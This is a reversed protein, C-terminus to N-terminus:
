EARKAALREVLSLVPATKEEEKPKKEWPRELLLKMASVSGNRASIELLRIVDDQTLHGDTTPATKLRDFREAFSRKDPEANDLRGAQVWKNVTTKSINVAECADKQTRGTELLTLFRERKETTFQTTM